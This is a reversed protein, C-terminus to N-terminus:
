AQSKRAKGRQKLVSWNQFTATKGIVGCKLSSGEKQTESWEGFDSEPRDTRNNREERAILRKTQAAAENSTVWSTDRTVFALIQKVPLYGL